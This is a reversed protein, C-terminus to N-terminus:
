ASASVEGIDVVEPAKSRVRRLAKEIWREYEGRSVAQRQADHFAFLERMADLGEPKVSMKKTAEFQKAARILVEQAAECAELAEPGVGGRAMTESLTHMGNVDVWEQLGASGAAFMEIAALERLRLDDLLKEPTARVGDIVYNLPSTAAYIRGRKTRKRM